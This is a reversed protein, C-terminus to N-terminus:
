SPKKAMMEAMAKEGAEKMEEPTMDFKHTSVQWSHGFPDVLSGWRDGWFMDALPQKVTAGAAVAANFMADCDPVTLYISSGTGGLTLPSKAGWELQEECLFVNGDGIKLNAHMITKGDPGTARMVEQAGFAKKYFEIAKSADRCTLYPTMTHCGDPVPKGPKPM